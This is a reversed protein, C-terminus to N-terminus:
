DCRAAILEVLDHLIRRERCAPLAVLADVAKHVYGLAEAAAAQIMGSSRIVEIAGQIHDPTRDNNLVADLHPNMGHKEVYLIAPLTIVGSALDCGVPKGIQRVDGIFDLVDDMIQFAMGFAFGYEKLYETQENGIKALIGSMQLAAAFLTATKAEINRYYADRSLFETRDMLLEQIEGACIKGIAGTAVGLLRPRLLGAIMRVAEAFLYDGALVAIQTSWQEHMAKYGRRLQSGDVVDDHILTAAHLLEVAAALEYFPKRPRDFMRAVLIALAARIRKGEGLVHKFIKIMNDGGTMYNCSLISNVEDLDRQIPGLVSVITETM